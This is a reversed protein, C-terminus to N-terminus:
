ASLSQSLDKQLISVTGGDPKLVIRIFEAMDQHLIGVNLNSKKTFSFESLDKTLPFFKSLTKKLNLFLASNELLAYIKLQIQILDMCAELCEKQNEQNPNSKLLRMIPLTYHIILPCHESIQKSSDEWAEKVQNLATLNLQKESEKSPAIKLLDELNKLSVVDLLVKLASTTELFEKKLHNFNPLNVELSSPNVEELAEYYGKEALVVATEIKDYEVKHKSYHKRIKEIWFLDHGPHNLLVDMAQSNPELVAELVKDGFPDEQSEKM